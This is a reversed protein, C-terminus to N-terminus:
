LTGLRGALRWKSEGGKEQQQGSNNGGLARELVWHDVVDTSYSPGGAMLKGKHDYAAFNQRSNYRVTLQVFGKSEDKPSALLMRGHVVEIQRLSPLEVFKWEVKSWGGKRRHSVQKQFDSFVPAASYERLLAQDGAALASNITEYLHLADHKFGKLTWGPFAKKCRSMTYVSKLNGLMRQWREKWGTPTLWSRLLPLQTTSSPPKYPEAIMNSTTMSSLAVTVPRAKGSFSNPNVGKPTSM